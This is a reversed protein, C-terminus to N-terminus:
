ELKQFINSKQNNENQRRKREHEFRKQNMKEINNNPVEVKTETVRNEM